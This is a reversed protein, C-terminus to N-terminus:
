LHILDAMTTIPSSVKVVARNQIGQKLESWSNWSIFHTPKEEGKFFRGANRVDFNWFPFRAKRINTFCRWWMYRSNIWFLQWVCYTKLLNDWKWFAIVNLQILLHEATPQNKKKLERLVAVKKAAIIEPYCCIISIYPTSEFSPLTIPQFILDSRAHYTDNIDRWLCKRIHEEYSRLRYCTKLQKIIFLWNRIWYLGGQAIWFIIFNILCKLDYHERIEIYKFYIFIQEKKIKKSTNYKTSTRKIMYQIYTM